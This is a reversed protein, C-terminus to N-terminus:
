TYVRQLCFVQGNVVYGPTVVFKVKGAQCSNWREQYSPDIDVNPQFDFAWRHPLGSEAISARIRGAGECIGRVSQDPGADSVSLLAQLREEDIEPGEFLASCCNEVLRALEQRQSRSSRKGDMSRRALWQLRQDVLLRFREAIELHHTQDETSLDGRKRTRDSLLASLRSDLQAITDEAETLKRRLVDNEKRLDECGLWDDDILVLVEQSVRIVQQVLEALTGKVDTAAKVASEVSVTRPIDLGGDTVSEQEEM